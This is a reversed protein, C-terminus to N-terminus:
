LDDDNDDGIDELQTGPKSTNGAVVEHRLYRGIAEQLVPIKEAKTKPMDKSAPISSNFRRHWQLQFDIDAVRLSQLAPISTCPEFSAFKAETADRKEQRRTDQERNRRAVEHDYEAQAKRRQRENHQGEM